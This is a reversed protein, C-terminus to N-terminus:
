LSGFHPGGKGSGDGGCRPAWRAEQGGIHLIDLPTQALQWRQFTQEDSRRGHQEFTRLPDHASQGNGAIEKSQATLTSPLMALM